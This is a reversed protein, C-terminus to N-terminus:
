YLTWIINGINMSLWKKVEVFKEIANILIEYTVNSFAPNNIIDKTLKPFNNDVKYYKFSKVQYKHNNLASDDDIYGYKLVKNVFEEKLIPSNLNTLISEYLQHVGCLGNNFQDSMKEVSLVVLYGDINSDLQTLSNIKITKSSTGITKVEFWNDENSFDKSYGDPGVWSVVAEELSTKKALETYLFYLEGFLGQYLEYSMRGKTKLLLKWSYYRDGIRSIAKFEDQIEEISDILSECFIFFVEKAEENLLDFCTWFVGDAEKGQTVKIEKTSELEFPAVTSIFSLRFQKESTVGYFVSLPSNLPIKRQENVIDQELQKFKEAFNHM